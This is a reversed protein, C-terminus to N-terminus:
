IPNPIAFSNGVVHSKVIKQRQWVRRDKICVAPDPRIGSLCSIKPPLLYNLLGEFRLSEFHSIKKEIRNIHNVLFGPALFPM